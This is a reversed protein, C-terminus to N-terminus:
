VGECFKEGVNRMVGALVVNDCVAKGTGEDGRGDCEADGEVLEGCRLCGTWLECVAAM